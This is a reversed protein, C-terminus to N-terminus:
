GDRQGGPQAFGISQGLREEGGTGLGRGAVVLRDVELARDRQDAIAPQHLTHTVRRELQVGEGGLVGAGVAHDEGVGLELEAEVVGALQDEAILHQRGVGGAVPGGVSVLGAM